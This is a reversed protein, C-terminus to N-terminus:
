GDSGGEPRRFTVIYHEGKVPHLVREIDPPFRFLVPHGVRQIFAVDVGKMRLMAATSELEDSVVDIRDWDARVDTTVPM